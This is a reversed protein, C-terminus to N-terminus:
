LSPRRAATDLWPRVREFAAAARFVAVDDYTPGVIQIGTPVGNSARGSPVSIVPCRSMVNFPYTMAWGIMPDVAVGNITIQDTAPDHEARPAPIALTPCILLRYQDLIPGLRNYMEGAVIMAEYFERGSTTQAFEAFDRVYSTMEFRHRALLPTLSSGWLHGLHTMAAGLTQATWGLDVEEVACGLGRFVDLAAETNARVERDVEVYGLDISFAIKWGKIDKLDTPIRLKPKLSAIDRNHPGALVNEFLACDGVTRALPGEHCYFDLNFPPDEPVRGYPPKFGVVGCCSAPIRISGAIDSGNALTTTGAALQAAAGGSSGGPTFEPNWPNRTVGWLKSHTVGAASFEPATSRGHIIAGARKIREVVLADTEDVNDKLILSASTTIEGKISTEDKVVLPIGELSRLRGDTKGYRAEAAKAQDMARDFFQYTFANIVPNVAEARNIVAAMLEVPSLARAKFRAIAEVASMYCLDDDTM